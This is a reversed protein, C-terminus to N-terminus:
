FTARLGFFMGQTGGEFSFDSDEVFPEFLRYGVHLSWTPDIAFTMGGRIQWMWGGDGGLAPGVGLSVHLEYEDIFPVEPPLDYQLRFGAGTYVFAFREEARATNGGLERVTQGIEFYRVGLHPFFRLSTRETDYAVYSVPALEVAFTSYDLESSFTDGPTLDVDGFTATGAFTGAGDVSLDFGGVFLEWHHEPHFIELEGNFVTERDNLDLELEIAIDRVGPGTGLRTTGGVRPLHVGATLRYELRALRDFPGDGDEALATTTLGSLLLPAVAVGRM